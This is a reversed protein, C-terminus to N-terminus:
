LAPLLLPPGNWLGPRYVVGTSCNGCSSCKPLLLSFGSCDYCSYCGAHDFDFIEGRWLPLTIDDMVLQNMACIFSSLKYGDHRMLADLARMNWFPDNARTIPQQGALNFGHLFM